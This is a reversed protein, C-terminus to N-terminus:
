SEEVRYITTALLYACEYSYELTYVQPKTMAIPSSRREGRCLELSEWRIQPFAIYTIGRM